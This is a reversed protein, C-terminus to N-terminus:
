SGADKQCPPLVAAGEQLLPKPLRESQGTAVYGELTRTADRTLEGRGTSPQGKGWIRASM